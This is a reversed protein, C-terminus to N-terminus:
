PKEPPLGAKEREANLLALLSSECGVCVAKGDMPRPEFDTVLMPHGVTLVVALRGDRALCPTVASQERPCILAEGRLGTRAIVLGRFDEALQKAREYTM